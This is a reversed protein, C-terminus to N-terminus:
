NESFRICDWSWAWKVSLWLLASDSLVSAGGQDRLGLAGLSAFGLEFSRKGLLGERVWVPERHSRYIRIIAM